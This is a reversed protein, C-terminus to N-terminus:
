PYIISYTVSTNATGGEAAGTAYYGILYQLTAAKEIVTEGKISSDDGIKIVSNDRNRLQIQVNKAVGAAGILNLRGSATDTTAGAEFGVKVIGTGDCDTLKFTIAKFGSTEGAKSLTKASNRDLAVASDASTGATVKCTNSTVSGTITITGDSALASASLVTSVAVALTLFYAKSKKPNM